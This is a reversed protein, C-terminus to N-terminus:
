VREYLGLLMIASPITPNRMTSTIASYLMPRSSLLGDNM